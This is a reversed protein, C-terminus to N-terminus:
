VMSCCAQNDAGAGAAGWSVEQQGESDRLYVLRKALDEGGGGGSSGGSSYGSSSGSAYGSSSAEEGGSGSSSPAGVRRLETVQADALISVGKDQLVRRATDRNGQAPSASM